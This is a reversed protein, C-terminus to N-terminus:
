GMLRYGAWFYPHGYKTDIMSCQACQLAPPVAKRDLLSEYFTKLFIVSAFDPVEWLSTVTVAGACLLARTMGLLESGKEVAVSGSGCAGVILLKGTLDLHYMELATLIGDSLVLGSRLPNFPDYLGHCAVHIIDYDPYIKYFNEKTANENLLLTVDRGSEKVLSSITNCEKEVGKLDKGPNGLVLVNKGVPVKTVLAGAPHYIFQYPEALFGTRWLAHFPFLYLGKYPVIHVISGDKLYSQVPEVLLKYLTHSLTKVPSQSRVRLLYQYIRTQLDGEGDLQVSIPKFTSSSLFFLLLRDEEFLYELYVERRSLEDQIRKVHLPTVRIKQYLEGRTVKETYETELRTIEKLITNTQEYVASYKPLDAYLKSIRSPISIDASKEAAAMEEVITRAKMKQLVSFATYDLGMRHALFVLESYIDEVGSLFGMKLLNPSIDGRIREVLNLSKKLYHYARKSEGKKVYMHGLAWFAKYAITSGNIAAARKSVSKLMLLAKEYKGLEALLAGENLDILLHHLVLSDDLFSRASEFLSFAEEFRELEGLIVAENTRTEAVDVVQNHQLFVSEVEQFVSLADELRSLGYLATARNFAAEAAHIDIGAKQYLTQAEEFLTLADEFRNVMRYLNGRNVKTAALAPLLFHKKFTSEVQFYLDLAEDYKGLDKLMNAKDRMAHAETIDMNASRYYALVTNYYAIAKQPQDACAYVNAIEWEVDKVSAPKGLKKLEERASYLEKLAEKFQNMNRKLGAINRRTEIMEVPLNYQNFLTYAKELLSLAEQYQTLKRLTMGKDNYIRALDLRQNEKVLVSIAEDYLILAKEYQGLGDYVIAQNWLIHAANLHCGYKVFIKHAKEYHLLAKKFKNLERLCNGINQLCIARQHPYKEKFIRQAKCYLTVAKQYQNQEYYCNGMNCLIAAKEPADEFLLLAKELLHLSKKYNGLERFKVATKSLIAGTRPSEPLTEGIEEARLLCELEKEHMGLVKYSSTMELLCSAVLLPDNSEEAKLLAKQLIDLSKRPDKETRATSLLNRADTM